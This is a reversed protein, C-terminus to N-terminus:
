IAILKRKIKPWSTEIHSPLIYVYQKPAKESQMSDDSDYSKMETRMKSDSVLPLRKKSPFYNTISAM